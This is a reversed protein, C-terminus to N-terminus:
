TSKVLLGFPRWFPTATKPANQNVSILRAGIVRSDHLTPIDCFRQNRRDCAL